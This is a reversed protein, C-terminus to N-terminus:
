INMIAIQKYLSNEATAINIYKDEFAVYMDATVKYSQIKENDKMECHEKMVKNVVSWAIQCWTRFSPLSNNLVSNVRSSSM